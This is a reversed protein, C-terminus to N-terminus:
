VYSSDSYVNEIVCHANRNSTVLNGYTHVKMSHTNATDSEIFKGATFKAGSNFFMYLYDSNIFYMSAKNGSLPLDAEAIVAVGRFDLAKFGAAGMTDHFKNGAKKQDLIDEMVDWLYQTVVILDPTEGTQKKANAVGRALMRPIYTGSDADYLDSETVATATTQRITEADVMSTKWWTNLTATPTIGGVATSNTDNLLVTLANWASTTTTWMADAFAKELTKQLNKVKSSVINKVAEPTNMILFEEKNIKLTGTLMQPTYLALTFPDSVTPTLAAGPSGWVVNNTSDADTVELPLGIERGSFTKSKKKLIATLPHSKVFINDALIPMYKRAILSELSDYTLAM